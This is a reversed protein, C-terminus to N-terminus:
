PQLTGRCSGKPAQLREGQDGAQGPPLRSKGRKKEKGQKKGSLYRPNGRRSGGLKGYRAEDIGPNPSNYETEIAREWSTHNGNHSGVNRKELGKPNYTSSRIPWVRERLQDKEKGGQASEGWRQGEWAEGPQWEASSGLAGHAFLRRGGLWGKRGLLCAAILRGSSRSGAGGGRSKARAFRFLL